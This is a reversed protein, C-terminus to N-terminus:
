SVMGDIKEEIQSLTYTWVAMIVHADPLAAKMNKVGVPNFSHIVIREPKHEPYEELWVAVRYGTNDNAYHDVMIEGGLDHDLFLWDWEQAKLLKIADDANDCVVLENGAFNAWFKQVRELDDELILIRKSM